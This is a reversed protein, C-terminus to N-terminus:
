GPAPRSGPGEKGRSNALAPLRLEKILELDEQVLSPSHGMAQATEEPSLGSDRCLQVRRLYQVHYEVEEAGHYTEQAVQSTPKQEVLRKYCIIAKHSVSRSM